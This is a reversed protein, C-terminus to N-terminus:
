RDELRELAAIENPGKENQPKAESSGPAVEIEITSMAAICLIVSPRHCCLSIRCASVIISVLVAIYCLLFIASM